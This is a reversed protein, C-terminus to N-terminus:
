TFLPAMMPGPYEPGLVEPQNGALTRLLEVHFYDVGAEVLQEFKRHYVERSKEIEQQLCGYLNKAKRGQRVQDARYLQLDAVLVRAFRQARLHLDREASSLLDWDAPRAEPPAEALRLREAPAAPESARDAAAAPRAARSSLAEISAEAVACLLELAAPQMGHAAGLADAYLVAVVKQRLSLPFLYAQGDLQMGLREVLEASLHEPLSLSVVAERSEIAQALAPAKEVPIQFQAWSDSFGNGIAAVGAARWGVLNAGQRVLLAARGCYETASELLAGGVESVTSAHRLRRAAQSLAQAAATQTSRAAEAAASERGASLEQSLREFLERRIASLPQDFAQQLVRQVTEALEDAM